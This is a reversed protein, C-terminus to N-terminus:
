KSIETQKEKSLFTLQRILNHAFLCFEKMADADGAFARNLLEQACKRLQTIVDSTPRQISPKRPAALAIVSQISFPAYIPKKKGLEELERRAAAVERERAPHTPTSNQIRSQKNKMPFFKPSGNPWSARTTPPCPGSATVPWPFLLRMKVAHSPF